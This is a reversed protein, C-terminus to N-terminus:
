LVGQWRSAKMQAAQWDLEGSVAVGTDQWVMRMGMVGDGDFHWSGAVEIRGLGDVQQKIQWDESGEDIIAGTQEKM